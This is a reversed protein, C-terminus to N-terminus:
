SAGVKVSPITACAKKIAAFGRESTFIQTPTVLAEFVTGFREELWRNFNDIARTSGGLFSSDFKIKPRDKILPSVIIELGNFKNM